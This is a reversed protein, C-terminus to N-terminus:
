VSIEISGDEIEYGAEEFLPISPDKEDWLGAFFTEIGYERNLYRIAKDLLESGFGSMDANEIPHIYIHAESESDIDLSLSGLSEGNKREIIWYYDENSIEELITKDYHEKLYELEGSFARVWPMSNEIKLITEKDNDRRDRIVFDRSELNM